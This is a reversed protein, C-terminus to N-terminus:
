SVSPRRKAKGEVTRSESIAYLAFHRAKRRRPGIDHALEQQEVRLGAMLAVVVPDDAALASLEQLAAELLRRAERYDGRRNAALAHLRARADVAAAVARIVELNVPQAECAQADAVRWPVDLPQPAFVGGQDWIRCKVMVDEGLSLVPALGVAVIFQVQQDAVLDGLRIHVGTAMVEAPLDQLVWAAGGPAAVEVRVDRAVVELAEGLESAFLDPIQTPSEIYYFHGGGQQALRALLTEDFDAGVGFTSTTIGAERLTRALAALAEPDTVGRNALGDTLLLVRRIDAVAPTGDSGLTARGSRVEDAGRMWGDALNTAGRADVQELRHLAQAVADRTASARGQVTDVQDDYAVVAFHDRRTLLRLAHSAAARAMGIKTGHMSGSRDLVLAVDVAPRPQDARAPASPATITVHLYRVSRTDAPVLARDTQIHM